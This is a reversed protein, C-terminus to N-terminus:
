KRRSCRTVGDSDPTRPVPCGSGLNEIMPPDGRGVGVQRVSARPWGDQRAIREVRAAPGGHRQRGPPSASESEGWAALLLPETASWAQRAQDVHLASGDASRASVRDSDWPGRRGIGWICRQSLGLRLPLRVVEGGVMACGPFVPEAETGLCYWSPVVLTGADGPGPAGQAAFVTTQWFRALPQCAPGHRRAPARGLGKGSAARQRTWRLPGGHAMGRRCGRCGWSPSFCGVLTMAALALAICPPPAVLLTAPAGTRGPAHTPLRRGATPRRRSRTSTVTPCFPDLSLRARRVPAGRVVAPM